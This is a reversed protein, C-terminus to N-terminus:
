PIETQVRKIQEKHHEYYTKSHVIRKARCKVCTKDREELRTYGFDTSVHENDNICKCKCKSCVIHKIHNIEETM